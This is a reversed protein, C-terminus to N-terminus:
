RVIGRLIERLPRTHLIVITTESSHGSSVPLLRGHMATSALLSTPDHPNRKLLRPDVEVSQDSINKLLLATAYLRDTRFGVIPTAVISRCATSNRSCQFLGSVTRKDVSIRQIAPHDKVLRQPAYLQQMVYRTLFPYANVEPTSPVSTSIAKSEKRKASEKHVIIKEDLRAEESPEVSLVLVYNIGSVVEKILIKQNTFPRAPEIFLRNDVSSITKFYSYFARPVGVEVNGPFVVQREQGIVLTVPIPDKNWVIHEDAFAESLMLLSGMLLLLQKLM